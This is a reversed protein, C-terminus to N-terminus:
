RAAEELATFLREPDLLAVNRKGDNCIGTVHRSNFPLTAPPPVIATPDFLRVGKAEEIRCAVQWGAQELALMMPRDTTPGPACQLIKELFFCLTVRGRVNVVGALGEPRFPVTHVLPLPAAFLLMAPDLGFWECGARFVFRRLAERTRNEGVPEALKKQWQEREGPEPERHFFAANM